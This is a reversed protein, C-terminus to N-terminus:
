KYLYYSIIGAIIIVLNLIVQLIIFFMLIPPRIRIIYQFIFIINIAIFYILMGEITAEWNEKLKSM